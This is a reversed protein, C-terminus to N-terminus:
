ARGAARALSEAAWRRSGSKGEASRDATTWTWSRERLRSGNKRVYGVLTRAEPVTSEVHVAWEGSGVRTRYTFRDDAQTRYTTRTM